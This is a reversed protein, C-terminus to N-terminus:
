PNVLDVKYFNEDVAPVASTWTVSGGTGPGTDAVGWTGGSLDLNTSVNYDYSAVSDWTVLVNGGEVAFDTIVVVAPPETVEGRLTLNDLYFGAPSAGSIQYLNRSSNDGISVAILLEGSVNQLGSVVSVDTTFSTFGTFNTPAANTISTPDGMRTWSAGSDTSFWGQASLEVPWDNTSANGIALDYIISEVSVVKGSSAEVSFNLYDVTGTPYLEAGFAQNQMRHPSFEIYNGGPVDGTIVDERVNAGLVNYDTGGGADVIGLVSATLNSPLPGNHTYDFGSGFGTSVNRNTGLVGGQLLDGPTANEFDFVVLQGEPATAVEAELKISMNDVGLAHRSTTTNGNTNSRDQFWRIALYHGDAIAAPVYV